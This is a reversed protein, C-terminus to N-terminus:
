IRVVKAGPVYSISAEDVSTLTAGVAAPHIVRAHLMGPVKVDQVYRHRGTM